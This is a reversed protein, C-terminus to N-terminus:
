RAMGGASTQQLNERKTKVQHMTERWLEDRCSQPSPLFGVQWPFATVQLRDARPATDLKALKRDAQVTTKWTTPGVDLELVGKVGPVSIRARDSQQAMAILSLLFAVVLVSNKM